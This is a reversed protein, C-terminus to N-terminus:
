AKRSKAGRRVAPTRKAASARVLAEVGPRMAKPVDRLAGLVQEAWADNGRNEGLLVSPPLALQDAIDILLGVSPLREGRELYGVFHPVVGLARALAVQSWGRAERSARVATGIRAAIRADRATVPPM